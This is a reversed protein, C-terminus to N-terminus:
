GPSLLSNARWQYLRISLHLISSKCFFFGYSYTLCYAVSFSFFVICILLQRYPTCSTTERCTRRILRFCFFFLIVFALHGHLVQFSQSAITCIASRYLVKYRTPNRFIRLGYKRAYVVCPPHFKQLIGDVKRRALLTIM